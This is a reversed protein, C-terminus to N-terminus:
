FWSSRGSLARQRRLAIILLGVGTALLVIAIAVGGIALSMVLELKNDVDNQMSTMDATASCMFFSCLLVFIAKFEM